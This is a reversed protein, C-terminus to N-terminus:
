KLIQISSQDLYGDYHIYGLEHLGKLIRILNMEDINLIRGAVFCDFKDLQDEPLSKLYKWVEGTVTKM